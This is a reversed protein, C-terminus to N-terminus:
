LYTYLQEVLGVARRDMFLSQGLRSTVYGVGIGADPDAFGVSGGAGPHGFGQEGGFRLDAASASRIYGCGFSIEAQLVVDRECSQERVAEALVNGPLTAPEEMALDGYLTALDLASFHGNAAPILAERWQSSNSSMMLSMPNSFAKAVPGERDSKMARGVANERLEPLPKKLPLVDALRGSRHGVGGFGGHLELPGALSERYLARLSQGSARELLGGLAWGYLFPSYGQRSGPFWWPEASAVAACSREWDYIVSDQMRERFAVLGARHCLLQRPTVREKGGAAFEPWYEAVPRDLDLNGAAVQQLALLALVGKSCSFVNALTDETYPVEGARDASGAWLSVITEGDQRVAFAAGTDGYHRFNDAFRDYLAELGPACHGYIEM